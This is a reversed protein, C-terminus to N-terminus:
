SEDDLTYRLDIHIHYFSSFSISFMPEILDWIELFRSSIIIEWSIDFNKSTKQVAKETEKTTENLFKSRYKSTTRSYNWYHGDLTIIEKGEEFERKAIISNYSQFYEVGDNDTLIFQNAIKNGKSSVMNEVKM